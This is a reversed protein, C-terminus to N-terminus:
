EIMEWDLPTGRAINCRARRGIVEPMHKPPLGHGPRISRVNAATFVEGQRVDKVVFLSRRFARSGNEEVNSVIDDAGLACEAFRVAGVLDRFERPELSFAADPGGANRDLTLHKEIISAGLAVAAVVATHGPSHDSLGVPVQYRAALQPIVRLNMEAAPAPYASTCKLLAIQENGMNRAAALADDIENWSAMGTSMILPKGQRAADAILATDVLEFSAIKYAPMDLTALFEVATHDFPTSFWQLGLRLAEAKLEPHWKWPTFAEQYLDYLTRGSWLTGEGIRFWETDADITLTDATYTQLKVADAGAEAAAQILALADGLRGRHNASLEAVIYTPQGPGILRGDIEIARTMELRGEGIAM